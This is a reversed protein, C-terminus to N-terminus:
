GDSMINEPSDDIWIDVEIGNEECHVFKAQRNTHFINWGDLSIAGKNSDGRKTVIFVTHGFDKSMKKFENWFAPDKTYTDDYDLAIQM